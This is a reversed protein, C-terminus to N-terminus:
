PASVFAQFYGKEDTIANGIMKAQNHMNTEALYITVYHRSAPTKRDPKMIQGQLVEPQDLTIALQNKEPFDFTIWKHALATGAPPIIHALYRGEDLLLASCEDRDTTSYGFKRQCITGEDNTAATLKFLNDDYIDETAITGSEGIRSFQIQAGSVHKGSPGLVIAKLQERKQLDISLEMNGNGDLNIAKIVRMAFPSDVPPIVAIDYKGEYIKPFNASGTANVQKKIMSVGAGVPASMYLLANGIPTDDSGHIEVTLSHPKKTVGVPLDGVDFDAALISPDLKHKVRPLSNELDLPEIVLNIPSQDPDLGHVLPSIELSFSGDTDLHDISSILRSGLMVRAAMHIQDDPHLVANSEAVLRGTLKPLSRPTTFDFRQDQEILGADIYVPAQDLAGAPNLILTYSLGALLDIQYGSDSYLKSKVTPIRPSVFSIKNVSPIAIIDTAASNEKLNEESLKAFLNTHVGQCDGVIRAIKNLVLPTSGLHQPDQHYFVQTLGDPPEVEIHVARDTFTKFDAFDCIGNCTINSDKSLPTDIPTQKERCGSIVVIGIAVILWKKALNIALHFSGTFLM